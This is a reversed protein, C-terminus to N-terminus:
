ALAVADDDALDFHFSEWVVKRDRFRILAPTTARANDLVDGRFTSAPTRSKARAPEGVIAAMDELALSPKPATALAEM